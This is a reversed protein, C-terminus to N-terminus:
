CLFGMLFSGGKRLYQLRRAAVLGMDLVFFTLAGYFMDELLCFFLPEALCRSSDLLKSKLM